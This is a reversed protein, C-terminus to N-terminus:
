QHSDYGMHGRYNRRPGWLSVGIAPASRSAGPTAVSALPFHRLNTVNGM